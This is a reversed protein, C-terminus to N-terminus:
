NSWRIFGNQRLRSRTEACPCRHPEPTIPTAASPLDAPEPGRHRRCNRAPFRTELVPGQEIHLELYAITKPSCAHTLLGAPNWVLNASRKLVPACSQKTSLAPWRGAASLHFASASAKKKPSVLLKSRSALQSGVSGGLCDGLVVGLIGDFAGANPVTDLHSVIVAQAHYKRRARRTSKRGCRRFGWARRGCGSASCAICTTCPRRFSRARSGGPEESFLALDRCFEIAKEALERMIGPLHQLRASGAVASRSLKRRRRLGPVPHYHSRLFGPSSASIARTFFSKM